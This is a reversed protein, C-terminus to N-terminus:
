ATHNWTRVASVKQVAEQNRSPQDYVLVGVALSSPDIAFPPGRFDPQDFATDKLLRRVTKASIDIDVKRLHRAINRTTKGTWKLGCM